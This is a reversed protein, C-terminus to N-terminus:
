TIFHGASIFNAAFGFDTLIFLCCRRMARATGRVLDIASGLANNGVHQVQQQLEMRRPHHRHRRALYNRAPFFSRVVPRSRVLISEPTPRFFRRIGICINCDPCNQIFGEACESSCHRGEPPAEVSGGGNTRHWLLGGGDSRAPGPYFGIDEARRLHGACRLSASLATLIHHDDIGSNPVLISFYDCHGAAKGEDAIAVAM